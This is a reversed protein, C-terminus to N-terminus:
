SADTYSSSRGHPCLVPCPRRVRRHHAASVYRGDHRADFLRHPDRPCFFILETLVIPVTIGFVAQYPVLYAAWVWNVGWARGYQGLFGINPYSPNFLSQQVLGEAFLGFAIGLILLWYSPLGRWRVVERILLASGGYLGTVLILAPLHTLPISGLLVEAVLPPLLFLTLPPTWRLSRRGSGNM